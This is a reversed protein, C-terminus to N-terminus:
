APNPPFAHPHFPLSCALLHLFSCHSSSLCVSACEMQATTQVSKFKDGEQCISWTLNFSTSNYRFCVLVLSTLECSTTCGLWLVCSPAFKPFFQVAIVHMLVIDYLVASKCPLNNHSVQNRVCGMQHLYVDVHTELPYQFRLLTRAQIHHKPPNSPLASTRAYLMCTCVVRDSGFCCAREDLYLRLFVLM